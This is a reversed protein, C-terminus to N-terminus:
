RKETRSLARAESCESRRVGADSGDVSQEPQRKARAFAREVQTDQVRIRSTENEGTSVRRSAKTQLSGRIVGRFKVKAEKPGILM